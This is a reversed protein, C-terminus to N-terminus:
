FYGWLGWNSYGWYQIYILVLFAFLFAPTFPIGQKVLVKKRYNKKILALQEDSLGEWNPEIYKGKIKIRDVLWDGVSLNKPSVYVMLCASEVAKTYIYLLPFLLILLSVVLFVIQGIVISVIAFLFLFVLAFYFYRKNRGFERKFEKVFRERNKLSLGVSYVLSYISGGLLLFMTFVFFILFNSHWDNAVPIVAGLAILLKADGGAFLRAYYFLNGIVFFIGFGALGFLIYRYDNLFISYFLRFVLAFLVLSFNLWNAVERTKFDQAIAFVIWVLGLM